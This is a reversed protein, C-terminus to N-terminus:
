KATKKKQTSQKKLKEINEKLHDMENLISEYTSYKLLVASAKGNKDKIFEPAIKPLKKRKNM